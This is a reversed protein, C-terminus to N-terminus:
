KKQCLFSAFEDGDLLARVLIGGGTAQLVWDQAVQIGDETVRHHLTLTDQADCQAMVETGYDIDGRGSMAPNWANLEYFVDTAGARFVFGRLLSKYTVAINQSGLLLESAAEKPCLYEGALSACDAFARSSIFIAVIICLNKM